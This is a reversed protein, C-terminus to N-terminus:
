KRTTHQHAAQVADDGVVRGVRRLDVTFPETANLAFHSSTAILITAKSAEISSTISRSGPDRVVNSADGAM